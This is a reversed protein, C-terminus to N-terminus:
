IDHLIDVKACTYNSAIGILVSQGTNNHTLPDGTDVQVCHFYM